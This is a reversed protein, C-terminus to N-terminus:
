YGGQGGSSHGGGYGGQSYGGEYRIEPMYGRPDAVYSVIQTRGDPLLVRYEGRADDGQRQEKHGFDNGSQADQVEYQFQYNAPEALPDGGAGGYGGAGPVGYQASPVGYQASPARSGGFRGGSSGRNFASGGGFGGGGIGGRFGGGSGRGFGSSGSGGGGFPAGYQSSPPLYSPGVPPEALVVTVVAVVILLFKM